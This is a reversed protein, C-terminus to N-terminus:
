RPHLAVQTKFRVHMHDTHNPWHRVLGTNTDRPYQLLYALEDDPTGHAKAWKYLRAQVTRDLFIMEVGTDLDFKMPARESVSVNGPEQRRVLRVHSKGSPSPDARQISGVQERVEARVTRNM